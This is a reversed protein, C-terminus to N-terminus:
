QSNSWTWQITRWTGQLDSLKCRLEENNKQSNEIETLMTDDVTLDSFTTANKIGITKFNYM